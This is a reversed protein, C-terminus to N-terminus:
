LKRDESMIEAIQLNLRTDSSDKGTAIRFLDYLKMNHISKSSM